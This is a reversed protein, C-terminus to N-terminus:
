GEPPYREFSPLDDLRTMWSIRDATQIQAQLPLADPDDLTASQIDIMGPFIGDNTYFLGPGAVGLGGGSRRGLASLGPLSLARTAGRRHDSLRHSWLPLPRRADEGGQPNVFHEAASPGNDIRRSRERMERFHAPEDAVASSSASPSTTVM